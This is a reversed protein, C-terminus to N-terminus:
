LGVEEPVRKRFVLVSQYGASRLAAAAEDWAAGVEGPRHADSGVTMPVGARNLARLFAMSPYLERCPKRLGATNVEVAVGAAALREACWQYREDLGGPPLFNFKKMLDPHGMVDYLGTEAAECVLTFYRDWLADLDRGEYGDTRDPDDFAWDDLYHVSGLVVDFDASALARETEELHAPLHDAEIGLLVEPAATRSALDRIEAVYDPLESAPMAYSAAHPDAALVAAPLPLHDTFALISVGRERAAAVYEAAAGRAHGCRATHVHMDISM